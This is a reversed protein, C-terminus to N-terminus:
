ERERIFIVECNARAHEAKKTVEVFILTKKNTAGM